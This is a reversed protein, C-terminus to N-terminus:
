AWDSLVSSLSAVHRAKVAIADLHAALEGLEGRSAEAREAWGHAAAVVADAWALLDGLDGPELPARSMADVM